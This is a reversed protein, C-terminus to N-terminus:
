VLGCERLLRIFKISKLLKTNMPEGFQCYRMFLNLLANDGEQLVSESKQVSKSVRPSDYEGPGSQPIVYDDLIMAVMEDKNIRIPSGEGKDSRYGSSQFDQSPLEKGENRLIECLLKKSPIFSIQASYTRNLKRLFEKFADSIELSRVFGLIKKTSNYDEARENTYNFHIIAFRFLFTVLHSLTFANGMDLTNGLVNKLNPNNTM